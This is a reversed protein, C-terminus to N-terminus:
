AGDQVDWNRPLAQTHGVTVRIFETKGETYAERDNTFEEALRRKLAGYAEAVDHHARLYDRFALEDCFRPSGTPILHLHHTRRSPDPKCFWHMEEGRYPVYLYGLGGLREFCARSEELSKVGVLIDIVPKAPLGRVATSGVHHVGGDVWEGITDNLAAREWEFREPWAPDYPVIRIPEDTMEDGGYDVSSERM